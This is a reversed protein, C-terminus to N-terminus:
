LPTGEPHWFQVIGKRMVGDETVDSVGPGDTWLFVDLTPVYRFRGWAGELSTAVGISGHANAPAHGGYSERSWTWTAKRFDLSSPTLVHTINEGLGEYLVIRHRKSDWAASVDTGGHPFGSEGPPLSPIQVAAMVPTGSAFDVLIAAMGANETGGGAFALAAKAEPVFLWTFDYVPVYGDNPAGNEVQVTVSEIPRPVPLTLDQYYAQSKGQDFYWMKRNVTDKVAVRSGAGVGETVNDSRSRAMQGDSLSFTWQGWKLPHSATEDLESNPVLISGVGPAGGEDPALYSTSHYLHPLVIIRSGNYDYDLWDPDRQDKAADYPHGGNWDGSPPLNREAGVQGWKRTTVDFFYSFCGINAGHGGGFFALAGDKSYGDAWIAGNWAGVMGAFSNAGYFGNYWQDPAAVGKDIDVDTADNQNVNTIMGPKPMWWDPQPQPDGGDPIGGGDPRPGDDDPASPSSCGLHLAALAWGM